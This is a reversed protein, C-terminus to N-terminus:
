AEKVRYRYYLALGAIFISIAIVNAMIIVWDNLYVGYVLWLSNGIMLQFMTAPSVDEVIKRRWIKRVQPVFGFSTLSAAVIGVLTWLSFDM